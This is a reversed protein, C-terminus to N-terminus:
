SKKEQKMRRREEKTPRPDRIEAPVATLPVVAAVVKMRKLVKAREKAAGVGKGFARDLRDLKQQPTLADYEAQRKTASTRKQENTQPM